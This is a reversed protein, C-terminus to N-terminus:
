ATEGLDVSGAFSRGDLHDCPRGRSLHFFRYSRRQLPKLRAFRELPHEGRAASGRKRRRELLRERALPFLLSLRAHHVLLGHVRKFRLECLRKKRHVDANESGRRRLILRVRDQVRDRAGKGLEGRRVPVLELRDRRAIELPEDILIREPLEIRGLRHRERALLKCADEMQGRREELHGLDFPELGPLGRRRRSKGRRAHRDPFAHEASLPLRHAHAVLVAATMDIDDTLGAGSFGYQERVHERVVYLPALAGGDDIRVAIENLCHHPEDGLLPLVVHDHEIWAVEHPGHAEIHEIDVGHPRLLLGEHHVLQLSDEILQERGFRHTGHELLVHPVRKQKEHFIRRLRRRKHLHRPDEGVASKAGALERADRIRRNHVEPLFLRDFSAALSRERVDRGVDGRLEVVEDRVVIETGNDALGRGRETEALHHVLPLYQKHVERLAPYAVDVRVQKAHDNDALKEHGREGAHVDGIRLLPAVEVEVDVLELVERGVGNGDNKRLRPFITQVKDDRM